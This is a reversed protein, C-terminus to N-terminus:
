ESKMGKVYGSLVKATITLGIAGAVMLLAFWVGM